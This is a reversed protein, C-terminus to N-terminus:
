PFLLCSTKKKLIKKLNTKNKLKFSKLKESKGMSKLAMFQVKRQPEDNELEIEHIILSSVHKELTINNLDKSLKLTTITPM